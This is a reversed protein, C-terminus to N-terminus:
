DLNWVYNGNRLEKFNLNAVNGGLFLTNVSQGSHRIAPLLRTDASVVQWNAESEDQYFLELHQMSQGADEALRNDAVLVFNSPNQQLKPESLKKGKQIKTNMGYNLHDSVGVDAPNRRLQPCNNNNASPCYFLEPLGGTIYYSSGASSSSRMKSGSGLYGFLLASWGHMTEAGDLVVIPKVGVLWDNNDTTYMNQATGIQKLNNICSASRGRERASNLAPLLIAALIAIIAIVVLLEIM